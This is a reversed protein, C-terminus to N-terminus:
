QKMIYLTWKKIVKTYILDIKYFQNPVGNMM